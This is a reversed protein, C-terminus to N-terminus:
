RHDLASLLKQPSEDPHAARSEDHEHENASDSTTALFIIFILLLFIVLYLLALKSAYAAARQVSWLEM